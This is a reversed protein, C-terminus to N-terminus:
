KSKLKKKKKEFILYFVLHQHQKSIAWMQVALLCNELTCSETPYKNLEYQNQVAAQLSSLYPYLCSITTPFRYRKSCSLVFPDHMYQPKLSFEIVKAASVRSRFVLLSPLALLPGLNLSRLSSLQLPALSLQGSTSSHGPINKCMPWNLVLNIKLCREVACSGWPGTFALCPRSFHPENFPSWPHKFKRGAFARIPLGSNFVLPDEGFHSMGVHPRKTKRFCLPRLIEDILSHFPWFGRFPSHFPWFGRLFLWCSAFLQLMPPFPKAKAAHFVTGSNDLEMRREVCYQWKREDESAWKDLVVGKWTCIWPKFESPHVAHDSGLWVMQPEYWRAGPPFWLEPFLFRPYPEVWQSTKNNPNFM